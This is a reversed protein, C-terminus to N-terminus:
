GKAKDSSEGDLAAGIAAFAEAWTNYLGGSHLTKLDVYDAVTPHIAGSVDEVVQLGGWLNGKYQWTAVNDKFEDSLQEPVPWKGYGDITDVTERLIDAVRSGEPTGELDDVLNALADLAKAKPDNSDPAVVAEQQRWEEVKGALVALATSAEALAEAREIKGEEILRSSEQGTAIGHARIERALAKFDISLFTSSAM